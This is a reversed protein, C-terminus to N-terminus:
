VREDSFRVFQPERDPVPARGAKPEAEKKRRPTIEVGRTEFPQAVDIFDQVQSPDGYEASREVVIIVRRHLTERDGPFRDPVSEIEVTEAKFDPFALTAMGVSQLIYVVPTNTWDAFLALSFTHELFAGEPDRFCPKEMKSCHEDRAAELRDVLTQPDIQIKYALAQELTRPASSHAALGLRALMKDIRTRTAAEEPAPLASPVSETESDSESESEEEVEVEFICPGGRPQFAPDPVACEFSSSHDGASAAGDREIIITVGEFRALRSARRMSHLDLAGLPIVQSPKGKPVFFVAAGFEEQIFIVARRMAQAFGQLYKMGDGGPERSEPAFNMYYRVLRDLAEVEDRTTIGVSCALADSLPDLASRPAIDPGDAFHPRMTALKERALMADLGSQGQENLGAAYLCVRRAEPAAAGEVRPTEMAVERWGHPVRPSGPDGVALDRPSSSEGADQLQARYDPLTHSEVGSFM